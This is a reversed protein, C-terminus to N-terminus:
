AYISLGKLAPQKTKSADARTEPDEGKEVEGEEEVEVEV